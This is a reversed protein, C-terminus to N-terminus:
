NDSNYIDKQLNNSAKESKKHYPHVYIRKVYFFMNAKEKYKKKNKLNKKPPPDLEYEDNRKFITGCLFQHILMFYLLNKM